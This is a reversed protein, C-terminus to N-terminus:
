DPLKGFGFFIWWMVMLYNYEELIFIKSAILFPGFQAQVWTVIWRPIGALIPSEWCSGLNWDM